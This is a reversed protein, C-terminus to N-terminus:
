LARTSSVGVITFGSVVIKPIGLAHRTVPEMGPRRCRVAHRNWCVPRTATLPVRLPDDVGNFVQGDPQVIKLWHAGSISM